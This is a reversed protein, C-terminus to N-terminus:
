SDTQCERRLLMPHASTHEWSVVGNSKERSYKKFKRWTRKPDSPFLVKVLGERTQVAAPDFNELVVLNRSSHETRPKPTEPIVHPSACVSVEDRQMDPPDKEHGPSPEPLAAYDLIGELLMPIPGHDGDLAEQASSLPQPNANSLTNSPANIINDSNLIANPKANAVEDSQTPGSPPQQPPEAKSSPENERRGDITQNPQALQEGGNKQAAEERSDDGNGDAISKEKGKSKVAVAKAGKGKKKGKAKKGEGKEGDESNDLIEVLGKGVRLLKGESDWEATGSWWTIVPGVLKRNQLAALKKRQEELRVAESEEWKNLSKLNREETLKAEKLREAQTMEKRPNEKDKKAAAAEMLKITHLRRKESEELRKMTETRNQLSLTRSSARTAILEPIWSVRESKKRPRPPSGRSPSTVTTQMATATTATSSGDQITVRKRTSVRPKLFVEAAKRKKAAREEKAQQQIEREGELDEEGQGGEKEDAGNYEDEDDSSELLVDSLEEVDRAEFEVDDEDELFLTDEADAEQHLLSALRNGATSRRERGAVLSEVTSGQNDM